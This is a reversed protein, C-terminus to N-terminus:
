LGLIDCSRFLATANKYRRAKVQFHAEAEANQPAGSFQTM